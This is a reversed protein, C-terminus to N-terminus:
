VGRREAHIQREGPWVSCLPDQRQLRHAKRNALMAAVRYLEVLAISGVAAEGIRMFVFSGAIPSVRCKSGLIDSRKSRVICHDTDQASKILGNSARFRANRLPRANGYHERIANRVREDAGVPGLKFVAVLLAVAFRRVVEGFAIVRGRFENQIAPTM